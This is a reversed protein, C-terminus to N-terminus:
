KRERERWIKNLDGLLQNILAPTLDSGHQDRFTHALNYAEQPMWHESEIDLLERTINPNKTANTVCKVQGGSDEIFESFEAFEKTQRLMKMMRENERKLQDIEVKLGGDPGKQLYLEEYMEQVRRMQGELGEREEIRRAVESEM